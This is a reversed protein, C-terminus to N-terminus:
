VELDFAVAVAGEGVGFYALRYRGAQLDPCVEAEGQVSAEVIGAETLEISWDFGEGPGHSVAEDTYVFAETEDIVRVDQWGAETRVQLNYKASNGTEVPEDAVNTLGVNLTDGYDYALDDVRLSLTTRGDREYDGWQRDDEDFRQDHREVGALECSLSAVPDADADPRVNGPLDEPAPSLSDDVSAAVTSSEGRGDTVDVVARDPPDANFAVRLLSSPYVLAETCSEGGTSTDRVTASARIGEDGVRVGDIELEDHCGDPGVSEVLVLRESEYDVGDVFELIRDRREEPLDYKTLLSRQRAESDVVVVYGTADDWGVAGRVAFPTTEADTVSLVARPPSETPVREGDGGLCGALAAGVGLCGARLADRRGINM